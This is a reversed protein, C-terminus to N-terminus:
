RTVSIKRKKKNSWIVDDTELRNRDKFILGEEVESKKFATWFVILPTSVRFHTQPALFSDIRIPVLPLKRTILAVM